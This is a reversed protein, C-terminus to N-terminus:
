PRKFPGIESIKGAKVEATEKDGKATARKIEKTGDLLVVTLTAASNPTVQVVLGQHGAKLDESYVGSDPISKASANLDLDGKGDFYSVSYGFTTGPPGEIRLKPEKPPGSSGGCGSLLAVVMVSLTIAPRFLWNANMSNWELVFVISRAVDEQVPCAEGVWLREAVDYGIALRAM